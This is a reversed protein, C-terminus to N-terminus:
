QANPVGPGPREGAGPRGEKYGDLAGRVTSRVLHWDGRGLDKITTRALKAAIYAQRLLGSPGHPHERYFRVQGLVQHYRNLPLDRRATLSVKHWMRARPVCWVRFGADRARRCLDADEFYMFYREDFPGVREFVERRVLMACGTVYDVPFPSLDPPLKAPRPMPLWRHRSDGLRWLREPDAFHYIAPGLIGPGGLQAEAELLVQVMTPAVVTDNNLVLISGAGQALAHRLGVNMGAAFGLNRDNRLLHLAPGLRAALAEVAEPRSGNDVVVIREAPVGAELVSEVCAATEDELNWNLTVVFM